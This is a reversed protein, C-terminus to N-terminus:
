CSATIASTPMVSTGRPLTPLFKATPVGRQTLMRSGSPWTYRSGVDDILVRVEVGRQMADHLAEAFESGARDNDYIYTCLTISKRVQEISKLMEPFAEDGNQLPTVSNGDLLDNETVQRSLNALPRLHGITDDHRVHDTEVGPDCDPSCPETQRSRLRIARREIRNIGFLFYLLSGVLPALWVVGVWGVASRPDRKHSIVHLSAATAVLINITTVVIYQIGTM